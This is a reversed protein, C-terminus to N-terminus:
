EESAVPGFLADALAQGDLPPAVATALQFAKFAEVPTERRPGTACLTDSCVALFPPRGDPTPAYVVHAAKKCFPCILPDSM